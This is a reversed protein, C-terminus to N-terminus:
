RLEELRQVAEDEKMKYFGDIKSLEEEMWAFFEDAAQDRVSELDVDGDNAGGQATKSSSIVRRVLASRSNALTSSTLGRGKNLPFLKKKTIAIEGGGLSFQRVHGESITHLPQMPEPLELTPVPPPVSSLTTQGTPAIAGYHVSSSEGNQECLNNKSQKPPAILPSREVFM